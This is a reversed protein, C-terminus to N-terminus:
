PKLFLFLISVKGGFLWFQQVLKDDENQYITTWTQANTRGQPKSFNTSLTDEVSSLPDNQGLSEILTWQMEIKSGNETLVAYMKMGTSFTFEVDYNNKGTKEVIDSPTKDFSGHKLTCKQQQSVEFDM